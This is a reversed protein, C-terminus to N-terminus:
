RATGDACVAGPSVPKSHLLRNQSECRAREPNGFAGHARDASTMHTKQTVVPRQSPVCPAQLAACCAATNSSEVCQGGPTHLAERPISEAYVSCTTSNSKGRSGESYTRRTPRVALPARPRPVTETRTIPRCTFSARSIMSRLSFPKGTCVTGDAAANLSSPAVVLSLHNCHSRCPPM